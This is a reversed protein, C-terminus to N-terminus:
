YVEEQQRGGQRRRDCIRVWNEDWKMWDQRRLDLMGLKLEMREESGPKGEIM